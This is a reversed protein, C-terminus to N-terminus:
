SRLICRSTAAPDSALAASLWPLVGNCTHKYAHSQLVHCIRAPCICYVHMVHCILASPNIYLGSHMNALCTVRMHQYPVTESLRERESCTAVFFKSRGVICSSNLSSASTAAAPLCYNNLQCRAQVCLQLTCCRYLVVCYLM